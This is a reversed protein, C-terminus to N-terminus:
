PNRPHHSRWEKPCSITKGNPMLIDVDMVSKDMRATYDNLHYVATSLQKLENNFRYPFVTFIRHGPSIRLIHKLTPCQDTDGTVLFTVDCRDNVVDDIMAISLNVDTKKEELKGSAHNNPDAPNPTFLFNGNIVGFRPDAKNARLFLQQRERKQRHMPPATFYTVADLRMGPYMFQDFLKCLDIWYYKKLRHSRLGYYFNFGDIYVRVRRPPSAM